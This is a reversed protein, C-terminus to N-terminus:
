QISVSLAVPMQEVRPFVARVRVGKLLAETGARGKTDRM